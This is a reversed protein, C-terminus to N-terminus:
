ACLTDCHTGRAQGHTDAIPAQTAGERWAQEGCVEILRTRSLKTGGSFGSPVEGERESGSAPDNEM